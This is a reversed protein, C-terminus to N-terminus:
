DELQEKIQVKGDDRMDHLYKKRMAHDKGCVSCGPKCNKEPGKSNLSSHPENVWDFNNNRHKLRRYTRSM